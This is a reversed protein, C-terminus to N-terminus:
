ISGRSKMKNTFYSNSDKITFSREGDEYTCEITKGQMVTPHLPDHINSITIPTRKDGGLVPQTTLKMTKGGNVMVTYRGNQGSIAIPAIKVAEIAGFPTYVARAFAEAAKRQSPKPTSVYLRVWTGPVAAYAIKAGTLDVGMYSGSTLTMAGVGECGHKVGTLQCPCPASCSCGEVFTGAASYPKKSAAPTAAGFLVSAGVM